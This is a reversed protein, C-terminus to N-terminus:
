SEDEMNSEGNDRESTEKQLFKSSKLKFVSKAKKDNLKLVIGESPVKETCYLCDRELFATKLEEIFKSGWDKEEPDIDFLDRAIGNYIVPTTKLDYRECFDQIMTWDYEFVEGRESTYTVRYVRFESNGRSIGYDYNKQIQKDPGTWGVIEGYVSIGVPIIGRLQEAHRGWVDDTYNGVKTNKLVSRSSYIERYEKRQVKVNLNEALKEKLSLKRGCLLNAYVASTGHWKDTITVNSSPTLLHGNRGLQETKYHFDFQGPILLSKIGAPEMKSFFSNVKPYVIKRVGRPLFSITKDIWKPIKVKKEKVVQEQSARAVYKKVLVHEGVTDFETGLKFIDSSIGYFKAVEEIPLVFGQSPMDRLNIARVRGHKGFFGKTKEDANLEAKDLLNKASLFDLAIQSEVPFYVVLDGVKYSGKGVIISNAFVDVIELRDAKPHTKLIELKVVTALYNVDANESVTLKM